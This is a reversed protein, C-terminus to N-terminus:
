RNINEAKVVTIGGKKPVCQIPSVWESDSIAYIMGFDLLKVIEKKVVELMNPNLRRQKDRVPETNPELIIKHMCISPSIGKIDAISWELASKCEKLVKLLQKEQDTTLCSSIIVPLTNSPGLFVYKLNELLPKLELQPPETLSLKLTNTSMEIFLKMM